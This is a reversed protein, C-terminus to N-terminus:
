RSDLSLHVVIPHLRPSFHMTSICCTLTKHFADDVDPEEVEGFRANGSLVLKGVRIGKMRLGRVLGIHGSVTLKTAMEIMKRKMSKTECSM